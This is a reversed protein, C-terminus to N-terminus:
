TGEKKPTFEDLSKFAEMYRVGLGGLIVALGIEPAYETGVGYKRLCIEGLEAFADIEEKTITTDVILQQAFKPDATKKVAKRFLRKDCFGTISKLIASCCRRVLVPDLNSAAPLASDGAAIAPLATAPANLPQDLKNPLGDKRPRGGGRKYLVGHREFVGAATSKIKELISSEVPNEAKQDLENNEPGPVFEPQPAQNQPTPATQEARQSTEEAPAAVITESM